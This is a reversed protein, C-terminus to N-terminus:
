PVSAAPVSAVPQPVSAPVSTGDMGGFQHKLNIYKKKYKLYKIKYQEESLM